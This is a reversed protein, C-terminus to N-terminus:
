RLDLLPPRHRPPQPPPRPRARQRPRRIRATPREVEVLVDGVVAIAEAGARRLSAAAAEAPERRRGLIAVRAGGDALGRAISAGLTGYGGTVVGTRGTLDFPTASM